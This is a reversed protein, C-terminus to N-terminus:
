KLRESIWNKLDYFNQPHVGHGANYEKYVNKIRLLYCIEPVTRAWEVPLVQDQSGHSIFFDLHRYNKNLSDPSLDENMYGSLAVVYKLKEPYKLAVAYSLITGQSFGLLFVKEKNVKYKATMEDIFSAIIEVANKAQEIDSFKGNIDDFNINYWAYSFYGLSLPARASIILLEDPLENAFSFLDLENSGYGHLMILLPPNDIPTKPYRIEYHLSSQKTEM